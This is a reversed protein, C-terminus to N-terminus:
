CVAPIMLISKSVSIVSYVLQEVNRWAQLDLVTVFVLHRDGIYLSLFPIRQIM